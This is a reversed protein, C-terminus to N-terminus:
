NANVHSPGSMAGIGPCRDAPPADGARARSGQPVEPAPWQTDLSQLPTRIASCSVATSRAGESRDLEFTLANPYHYSGQADEVRPPAAAAARRARLGPLRTGAAGRPGRPLDRRSGPRDGAREEVGRAPWRARRVKEPHAAVLNRREPHEAELDFLERTGTADGEIYKWRGQRIGLLTGNVYLRGLDAVWASQYPRRFLHISREGDLRAEGRAAPALSEGELGSQPGLGLLELATPAIDVTAVPESVTRRRPLGGPWRLLLPVRVAEEYLHVGHGLMGHQM